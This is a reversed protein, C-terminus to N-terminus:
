SSFKMTAISKVPISKEDRSLMSRTKGKVRNTMDNFHLPVELRKMEKVM